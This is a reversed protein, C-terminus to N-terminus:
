RLYPPPMREKIQYLLNHHKREDRAIEELLNKADFYGLTDAIEALKKYEEIAKEEDKIAEDILTYFLKRSERIRAWAAPTEFGGAGAFTIPLDEWPPNFNLPM